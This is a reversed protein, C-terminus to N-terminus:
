LPTIVLNDFHVRAEWDNFGLYEHGPGALPDADDWELMPQGDILWRLLRGKREVTFHYRRGVEVRPGVRQRRDPAHEDLRAIVNVSNHWGGFIIVYSTANSYSAQRAYSEGDGWVEVKLDGAESDSWADFEIRADRPLRRRLWLPHNHVSEGQLVGEVIRWGPGTERWDPGLAGREFRDEFRQGVRQAAPEQCGTLFAVGLAWGVQQTSVRM